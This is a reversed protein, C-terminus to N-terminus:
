ILILLYFSDMKLYINVLILHRALPEGSKKSIKKLDGHKILQRKNLNSEDDIFKYPPEIMQQLEYLDAFNKMKDISNDTADSIGLFGELM